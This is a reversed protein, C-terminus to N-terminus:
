HAQEEPGLAPFMRAKQQTAANAACTKPLIKDSPKNLDRLLKDHIELLAQEDGLAVQMEEDDDEILLCLSRLESETKSRRLFVSAVDDFRASSRIWSEGKATVLASRLERRGVDVQLEIGAYDKRIVFYAVAGASLLVLSILGTMAASLPIGPAIWLALAAFIMAILGFKAALESPDQNDIKRETRIVYGFRSELVYVRDGSAVKQFLSQAAEKASERCTLLTDKLPLKPLSPM